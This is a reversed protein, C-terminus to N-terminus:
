STKEKKKKNPHSYFPVGKLWLKLANWYIGSAVTVTMWPFRILTSRVSSPTIPKPKLMLTADFVKKGHQWNELHILNDPQEPTKFRWDYQMNMPHFPSIHFHKDLQFRFRGRGMRFPNIGGEATGTNLVYQFRESWPTNTIEPMIAILEDNHNFAYYFTVPNMIYGLTRLNTLMCVRSIEAPTLKTQACIRDIVAEKLPRDPPGFYDARKFTCWGRKEQTLLRSRISIEALEDLDLYWMFLPYKLVHPKPSYRRHRVWGVMLRSHEKPAPIEYNEPM